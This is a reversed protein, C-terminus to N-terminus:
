IRDLFLRRSDLPEQLFFALLTRFSSDVFGETAAQIRLVSLHATGFFQGLSGKDMTTITVRLTSGVAVYGDSM